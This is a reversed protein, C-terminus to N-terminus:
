RSSFIDGIKDAARDRDPMLHSYADLTTSEKSHSLRRSVTVIDEGAELSACIPLAKSIDEVAGFSGAFGLLESRFGILTAM